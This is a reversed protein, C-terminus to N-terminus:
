LIGCVLLVLWVQGLTYQDCNMFEHRTTMILCAIVVIIFATAFAGATIKELVKHGAINFVKM